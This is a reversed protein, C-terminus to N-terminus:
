ASASRGHCAHTASSGHQGHLRCERSCWREGCKACSPFNLGSRHCSACKSEVRYPSSREVDDLSLPLEHALVSQTKPTAPAESSSATDLSDISPTPSSSRASSRTRSRHELVESSSPSPSAESDPSRSAPVRDRFFTRTPARSPREDVSTGGVFLRLADRASSFHNYTPTADPSDLDIYSLAPSKSPIPISPSPASSVKTSSTTRGRNLVPRTQTEVTPRRSTGEPSARAKDFARSPSSRAKFGFSPTSGHRMHGHVHPHPSTGKCCLYMSEPDAGIERLFDEFHSRRTADGPWTLAARKVTPRPMHMVTSAM